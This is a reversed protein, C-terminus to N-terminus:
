NKRHRIFEKLTMSSTRYTEQNWIAKQRRSAVIIAIVQADKASKSLTTSYSDTMYRITDKNRKQFFSLSPFQSSFRIFIVYKSRSHNLKIKMLHKHAKSLKKKIVIRAIGTSTESISMRIFFHIWSRSKVSNLRSPM